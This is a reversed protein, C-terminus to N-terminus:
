LDRALIANVADSSALYNHDARLAALVPIPHPDGLVGLARCAAARTQIQARPDTVLAALPKIASHDGVLAVARLIADLDQASRSRELSEVLPMLKKLGIIGLGTAIQEKVAPVYQTHLILSTLLPVAPEHEIMGLALALHGRHTPESNKELAKLLRAGSERDRAIGLALAFGSRVSLDRADDFAERLHRFAPTLDRAADPAERDQLGRLLLALGFACYVRHVSRGSERLGEVLARYAAEGGVRGLAIAALNRTHSDKGSDLTVALLRSAIARHDPSCALVGVAGVASRRVHAVRGETVLRALGSLTRDDAALGNREHIRQIATVAQAQVWDNAGRRRTALSKLHWSVEEVQRPELELLGLGIPSQACRSSPRGDEGSSGDAGTM